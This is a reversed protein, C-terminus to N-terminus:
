PEPDIPPTMLIMVAGRGEFLVATTEV